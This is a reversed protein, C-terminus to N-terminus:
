AAASSGGASSASASSSAGESSAGEPKRHRGAGTSTKTTGTSASATSDTGDDQRAHKGYTSGKKGTGQKGTTSGKDDTASKDGATDGTKDGATDTSTGSESGATDTGTTDKTETSTKEDTPTKVETTTDKVETPDKVETTTDKTETTDKVETTDTADTGEKTETGSKSAEEATKVTSGATSPAATLALTQVRSSAVPTAAAVTATAGVVGRIVGLDYAILKGPLAFVNKIATVEDTFAKALDTPIAAWDGTYLHGMASNLGKIFVLLQGVTNVATNFNQLPLSLLTAIGTVTSGASATAVATGSKAATAATATAGFAGGIVALDYAILKAPLAIVNQIAKQEDTWAQLLDAPVSGWAGTYLHGMALNLGKVFVLLQGVTNITTNLNNLPLGAVALLQDISATLEYPQELTSVTRHQVAPATAAAAAHPPATVLSATICLSCVGATLSASKRNM